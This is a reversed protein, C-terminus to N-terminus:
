LGRALAVAHVERSGAAQLAQAVAEVTAGTTLVDDLVMVRAPPRFSSQWRFAQRVNNRREASNLGAQQSTYRVRVMEHDLLPVGMRQALRQGLLAAQNYGRQRLRDQHLPVPVIADVTVPYREHYRVLLDGLPEALRPQHHYKLAHIAERLAGEFLYGAASSTLFRSALRRHQECNDVPPVLRCAAYCPTCLWAGRSRCGACRPPFFLDLIQDLLTHM